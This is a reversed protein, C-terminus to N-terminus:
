FPIDSDTLGLQADLLAFAATELAGELKRGRFGPEEFNIWKVKTRTKGNYTEDAVTIWCETDDPGALTEMQGPVYGLNKAIEANLFAVTVEKGAHPGNSPVVKTPSLAGFWTINGAETSFMIAIQYNGGETSPPQLSGDIKKAKYVGPKM